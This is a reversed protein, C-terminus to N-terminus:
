SRSIAGSYQMSYQVDAELILEYVNYQLVAGGTCYLVTTSTSCAYQICAAADWSCSKSFGILTVARSALPAKKLGKARKRRTKTRLQTHLCSVLVVCVCKGVSYLSRSLFNVALALGGAARNTEGFTKHFAQNEISVCAGARVRVFVCTTM